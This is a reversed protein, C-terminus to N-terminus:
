LQNLIQLIDPRVRNRRSQGSTQDPSNFAFLTLEILRFGSDDVACRQDTRRSSQVKRIVALHVRLSSEEIAAGSRARDMLEKEAQRRRALSPACHLKLVVPRMSQAILYMSLGSRLRLQRYADERREAFTLATNFADRVEESNGATFM